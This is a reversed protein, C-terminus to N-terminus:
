QCWWTIWWPLAPQWWNRALFPTSYESSPLRSACMTKIDGPNL